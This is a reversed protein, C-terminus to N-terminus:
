AAALLPAALRAGIDEAAARAAELGVNRDLHADDDACIVIDLDPRAHWWIRSVAALNKASFAAACAHGTARHVAAVTAVGEGICLVRDVVGLLWFLGDTRGGKLFRKTGDGAIRQLNHIRGDADVMPVLLTQGQQRLDASSMGKRSLYPHAPDAPSAAQWMEIADLATERVSAQRERDRREKAERWEIQLRDREAPSLCHSDGAKWKRSLGLRYNGFAGAPREDLYLIAWANRRGKGDGESQFRILEGGSLRQAIPEVPRVGEVEMAQIFDAVANDYSM